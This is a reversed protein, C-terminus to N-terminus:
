NRGSIWRLLVALPVTLLALPWLWSWITELLITWNTNLNERFIGAPNEYWDMGGPICALLLAALLGWGSGTVLIHSVQPSPDLNGTEDTADLELALQPRRRGPDTSIPAAVSTGTRAAGCALYFAEAHPDADIKLERYDLLAAEIAARELLARGVGRGM